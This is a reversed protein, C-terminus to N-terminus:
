SRISFTDAISPFRGSLELVEQTYDTKMKTMIENKLMMQERKDNKTTKTVDPSRLFRSGPMLPPCVHAFGRKLIALGLSLFYFIRLYVSKKSAQNGYEAAWNELQMAQYEFQLAWGRNTLMTLSRFFISQRAPSWAKAEIEGFIARSVTMETSKARLRVVFFTVKHLYVYNMSASGHVIGITRRLGIENQSFGIVVIWTRTERCCM